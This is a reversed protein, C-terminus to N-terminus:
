SRESKNKRKKAKSFNCLDMWLRANTLLPDLDVDRVATKWDQTTDLQITSNKWKTLVVRLSKANHQFSKHNLNFNLSVNNIINNYAMGTLDKYITLVLNIELFNHPKQERWLSPNENKAFQLINKFTNEGLTSIVKNKIIEYEM